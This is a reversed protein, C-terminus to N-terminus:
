YSKYWGGGPKRLGNPREGRDDTGATASEGRLPLIERNEEARSFLADLRNAVKDFPFLRRYSAAKFYYSKEALFRRAENEGVLEFKVGKSKLHEVLEPTTLMPKLESM